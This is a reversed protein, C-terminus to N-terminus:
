RLRPMSPYDSMDEGRVFSWIRFRCHKQITFSRGQTSKLFMGNSTDGFNRSCM